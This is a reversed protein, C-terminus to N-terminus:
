CTIRKQLLKTNLQVNTLVRVIRGSAKGDGYPTRCTKLSKRFNRDHLGKKIANVIANKRSPVFIVNRAHERGVNRSGVNVVPIGLSPAEIIGSSSNGVLMSAKRLLSIYENHPLNRFVRVFAMSRSKEIEKIIHENGPDNNPYIMISPLRLEKLAEIIERMQKGATEKELHVPHFMVILYTERVNIHFRESLIGDAVPPCDLIADIGLAGVRHVRWREEGMEVLRKASGLTTAFLLNAFRTISHRIPEDIHGSDTKDGAALHAIPIRLTAAALTAALPELRDGLVVLIEPHIEKFAKSLGQIGRALSKGYYDEQSPDGSYMTVKAALKFGDKKIEKLTLGHEKLLHMGTVVLRLRLYKSKQIKELLPKLMGYEARSGTVVVIKRRRM